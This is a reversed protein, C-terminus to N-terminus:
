QFRVTFLFHHLTQNVVFEIRKRKHHLHLMNQM